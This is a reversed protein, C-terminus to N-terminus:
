SGSDDFLGRAIEAPTEPILGTEDLDPGTREGAETELDPDGAKGDAGELGTREREDPTSM